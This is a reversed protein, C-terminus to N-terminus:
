NNILAVISYGIIALMDLLFGKFQFYQYTGKPKSLYRFSLFVRDKIIEGNLLIETNFNRISDIAYIGL